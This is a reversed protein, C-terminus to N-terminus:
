CFGCLVKNGCIIHVGCSYNLSTCTDTCPIDCVGKICMNGETCVNGCSACNLDTGLQTECGNTRDEDCDAYGFSCVPNCAGEICSNSGHSNFCSGCTEGCVEGCEYGLSSCTDICSIVCKGLNCVMGDFCDGCSGGCGNDGCARESCNSVCRYIESSSDWVYVGESKIEKGSKLAIIPIVTINQLDDPNIKELTFNFTKVGFEGISVKETFSESKIKDRFVFDLGVFEGRGLNRKLTLFVDNDIIQVNEIKLNFSADGLPVSGGKIFGNIAFFLIGVSALFSLIILIAIIARPIGRKDEKLWM